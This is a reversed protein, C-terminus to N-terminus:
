CARAQADLVLAEFSWLTVHSRGRRERGVPEIGRARAWRAFSRPDVGALHAAQATTLTV